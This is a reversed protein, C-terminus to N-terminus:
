ASLRQNGATTDPHETRRFKPILFGTRRRYEAYREGFETLMVAEEKSAKRSMEALFILMAALCRWQGIFLAAGFNAVLLGSYIPHRVWSYPGSQILQHDVKVTVRGSWNEGISHRAWIAFAVGLWTLAVGACLVILDSPIVRQNLIGFALNGWFMLDVALIMILVHLARGSPEEERKTQKLRAASILWYIIFAYWPIVELQRLHM